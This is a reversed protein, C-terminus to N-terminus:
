AEQYVLGAEEAEKKVGDAEEKTFSIEKEGIKLTEGLAILVDYVRGTDTNITTLIKVLSGCARCLGYKGIKVLHTNRALDFRFYSVTYCTKATCKPLLENHPM